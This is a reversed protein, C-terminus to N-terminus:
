FVELFRLAKGPAKWYHEGATWQAASVMEFSGRFTDMLRKNNGQQQFTPMNLASLLVYCEAIAELINALTAPGNGEISNHKISNYSQYWPLPVYKTEGNGWGSFPTLPGISHMDRFSVSYDPLKASESVRWYVSINGRATQFDEYILLKFLAEVEFCALVLLDRTANGHVELNGPALDVIRGFEVLKEYLHLINRIRDLYVGAFDGTEDLTKM